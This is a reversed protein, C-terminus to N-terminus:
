DHGAHGVVHLTATPMLEFDRSRRLLTLWWLGFCLSGVPISACRINVPLLGDAAGSLMLVPM